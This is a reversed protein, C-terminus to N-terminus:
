PLGDFRRRLSELMRATTNEKPDRISGLSALAPRGQEGMEDLATLSAVVVWPSPDALADILVPLARDARGGLGLWSAAAIRVDPSADRLSPEIADLDGRWGLRQVAWYRVAEDPDALDAATAGIAARRVARLRELGADGQLVAQRSGFEAEARVLMPEPLLHADRTRFTWDEQERRLRDRVEALVPDDIRNRRQWPDADCDYLEEEPKAPTAFWACQPPLKEEAALRRLDKMSDQQEGYVVPQSYPKWPTYNRIYLYRRDRVSRILDYREDMRDRAAYAYERPAPLNAGLFPRGQMIDPRVVGALNLVTPGFDLGSVLRDDTTGPAGQGDVRFREPIAVVLPIRTGSDYLWRKGRPLGDGHDSWFCVITNELLGDAELEKLREGVRRDMVTALEHYDAQDRRIEPDDPYIPPVDLTNPDPREEPKLEATEKAFRAPDAFAHSEHTIEINFVAFFPQSPEQRNRWHAKKSVENWGAEFGALNYDTKVNNTCYYGAARLWTPFGKAFPPVKAKSRMGDAGLSTPMMGTIIGTRSPACVGANTHVATFRVGRKALGGIAPTTANKGGYCGIHHPSLDECSLWLINPRDAAAAVAAGLWWAALFGFLRRM